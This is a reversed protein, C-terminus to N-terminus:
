NGAKCKYEGSDESSIMHIIYTQGTGISSTGKYWTYDHVPPNADSSCTLTVSSGEVIEGSPSISVSVRKPLYHVNLPVAPSRYSQGKVACSYSGADQQSVSPLHLLNSNYISYLESGSKYWTFTPTDTLMCTTKCTLTVPHGEVVSDPVM